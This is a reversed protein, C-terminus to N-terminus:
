TQATTQALEIEQAIAKLPKFLTLDDDKDASRIFGFKEYFPVLDESLAHVVVAAVGVTKSVEFIRDFADLLLDTAIGKGAWEVDVALRGLIIVPLPDPSNRTLKKPAAKRQVQGTALCYYAVVRSDDNALVFVRSGNSRQWRMATQQLWHNMNATGCDFQSINHESNLIEPPRM